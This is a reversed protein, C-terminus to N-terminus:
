AVSVDHFARLRDLSALTRLELFVVSNQDWILRILLFLVIGETGETLETLPGELIAIIAISSPGSM